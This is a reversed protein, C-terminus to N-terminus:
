RPTPAPLSHVGHQSPTLPGPEGLARCCIPSLPGASTAAQTWIRCNTSFMVPRTASGVDSTSSHWRKSRTFRSDHRGTPLLRAVHGTRTTPIGVPRDRAAERLAAQAIGVAEDLNGQYTHIKYLCYYTPLQDPALELAQRFLRDAAPRDRRYAIVGLQLLENVKEPLEGFNIFETDAPLASATM